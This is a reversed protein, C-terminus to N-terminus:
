QILHKLRVESTYDSPNHGTPQIYSTRYIKGNLGYYDVVPHYGAWSSQLYLVYFNREDVWGAEEPICNSGCFMLEYALSDSKRYLLVKTDLAFFVEEKNSSDNRSITTSYSDLDIWYSSDHTHKQLAILKPHLNKLHLHAEFAATDFSLKEEMKLPDNWESGHYALWNIVISDHAPFYHHEPRPTNMPGSSNISFTPSAPQPWFTYVIAIGSLLAILGLIFANANSGM